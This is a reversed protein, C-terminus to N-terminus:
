LSNLWNKRVFYASCGYEKYLDSIILSTNEKFGEREMLEQVEPFPIAVFENTNPEQPLQEEDKLYHVKVDFQQLYLEEEAKELDFDMERDAGTEAFICKLELENTELWTDFDPNDKLQPYQKM